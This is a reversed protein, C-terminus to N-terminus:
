AMLTEQYQKTKHEVDQCLSEYRSNKDLTRLENVTELIEDCQEATASNFGYLVGSPWEHITYALWQSLQEQRKSIAWESDPCMELYHQTLQEETVWDFSSHCQKASYLNQITQILCKVAAPNHKWEQRVFPVVIGEWLHHNLKHTVSACIVIIFEPKPSNNYEAVVQKAVQNADKHLGLGKLKLFEDYSPYM